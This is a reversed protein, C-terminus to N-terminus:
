IKSGAACISPLIQRKQQSENFKKIDVTENSVNKPNKHLKKTIKAACIDMKKLNKIRFNSTKKPKERTKAFFNYIKYM